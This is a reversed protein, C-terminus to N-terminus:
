EPEWEDSERFPRDLQVMQANGKKFATAHGEAVLVDIAMRLWEGKGKVDKEIQNRSRPGGAGELYRSVREMLNTPRFQGSEDLAQEPEIRWSCRGSEADSALVFLGLTPRPHFSPRDKDATIKAKGTLGRGFPHSAIGALKFHVDSQSIKAQSGIAYRGRAEKNKVVHDGTVVAIGERKFPKVALAYFSDIDRGDNQNLGHLELLPNLTDFCVLRGRRKTLWALVDDRALESLPEEPRLYAFLDRVEDDSVGFGRLRELTDSPGMDDSDVYAVGRGARLEDTAAALMLWSKAAEHEGSLMHARGAYFLGAIGPPKPPEAGLRLLDLAQWTHASPELLQETTPEGEPNSQAALQAPPRVYTAPFDRENPMPRM